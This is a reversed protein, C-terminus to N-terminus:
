VLNRTLSIPDHTHPQHPSHRRRLSVASHFYRRNGVGPSIDIQEVNTDFSGGAAPAWQYNSMGLVALIGPTEATRGDGALEARWKSLAQPKLTKGARAVAQNRQALLLLM